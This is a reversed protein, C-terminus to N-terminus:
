RFGAVNLVSGLRGAGGEGGAPEWQGTTIDADSERWCKLHIQMYSPVTVQVCLSLSLSFSEYKLVRDYGTVKQIGDRGSRICILSQWNSAHSGFPPRPSLRKSRRKDFPAPTMRGVPKSSNNFNKVPPFLGIEKKKKKGLVIVNDVYKTEVPFFLMWYSYKFTIYYVMTVSYYCYQPSVVQYLFMAWFHATQVESFAFFFLVFLCVFSCVFCSDM